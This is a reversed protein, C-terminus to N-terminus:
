SYGFGFGIYGSNCDGDSYVICGVSERFSRGCGFGLRM